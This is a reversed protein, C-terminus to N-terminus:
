ARVSSLSSSNGVNEAVIAARGESDSEHFRAQRLARMAARWQQVVDPAVGTSAHLVFDIFHACRAERAGPTDDTPILIATFAQLAAFDEADFFKPQYDRLLPPEPPATLHAPAQHDGVARLWAAFFDAGAPLGFASAALQVFDRRNLM